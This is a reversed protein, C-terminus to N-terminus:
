YSDSLARDKSAHAKSLEACAAACSRIWAAIHAVRGTVTRELRAVRWLLLEM